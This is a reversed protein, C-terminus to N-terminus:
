NILVQVYSLNVIGEENGISSGINIRCNAITKNEKPYTVFFVSEMVMIIFFTMLDPIKTGVIIHGCRNHFIYKKQRPVILTFRKSFNKYNQDFSQNLSKLQCVRRTSKM